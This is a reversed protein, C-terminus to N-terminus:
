FQDALQSLGPITLRQGNIAKVMCTIHLAAQAIFVIPVVICGICTFTAVVWVGAWVVLGLATLVLGHKAHWIVERDQKEMFLPILALIGLYSLVLFLQRNESVGGPGYGDGYGGPPPGPPPSYPPPPAASYPPPPPPMGPGEPPAPPFADQSM